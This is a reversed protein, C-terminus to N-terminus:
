PPIDRIKRIGRPRLRIPVFDRLAQPLGSVPCSRRLRASCAGPQLGQWSLVVAYLMEHRERQIASVRREDRASPTAVNRVRSSRVIGEVGGVVSGALQSRGSGDCASRRTGNWKSDGPLTRM